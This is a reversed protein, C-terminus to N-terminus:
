SVFEIWAESAAVTLDKISAENAVNQEKWEDTLKKFSILFLVKFSRRSKSM